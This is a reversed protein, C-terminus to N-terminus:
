QLKGFANNIRNFSHLQEWQLQLDVWAQNMIEHSKADTLPIDNQSLTIQDQNVEIEQIMEEIETM